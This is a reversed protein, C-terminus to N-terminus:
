NQETLHQDFQAALDILAEGVQIPYTASSKLERLPEPLRQFEREAHARSENLTPTLRKGAGMVQHILPEGPQADDEASLMDGAM